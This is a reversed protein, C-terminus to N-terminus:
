DSRAKITMMAAQPLCIDVVKFAIAYSSIEVEARGTQQFFRALREISTIEASDSLGRLTEVLSEWCFDMGM